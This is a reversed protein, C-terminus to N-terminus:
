IKLKSVLDKYKAVRMSFLIDGSKRGLNRSELPLSIDFIEYISDLLQIIKDTNLVGFAFVIEFFGKYSNVPFKRLEVFMKVAKGPDLKPLDLANALHVIVYKASDEYKVPIKLRKSFSKLASLDNVIAFLSAFLTLSGFSKLKSTADHNLTIENLVLKFENFHVDLLDASDLVKFFTIIHGSKLSKEFEKWIRESSLYNLESKLSNMM